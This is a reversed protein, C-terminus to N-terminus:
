QEQGQDTTTPVDLGVNKPRLSDLLAEVEEATHANAVNGEPTYYSEGREMTQGKRTVSEGIPISAWEKALEEHAEARTVNQEGKLWAQLKSRKSGALYEIAIRDQLEQNFVEDGTLGMSNVAGAMTLPIIQYAGVAFFERNDLESNSAVYQGQENTNDEVHKVLEDISVGSKALQANMIEKVTMKELPKSYTDSYFSDLVSFLKGQGRLRDTTGNNAAGYGGSEGKAIFSLLPNNSDSIEPRKSTRGSGLKVRTQMDLEGTVELGNEYQFTKVANTTSPGSVGDVDSKYHGTEKLLAQSQELISGLNIEKKTSPQVGSATDDITPEKEVEPKSIIPTEKTKIEPSTITEDLVPSEEVKPQVMSPAQTQIQTPPTIGERFSQYFQRDPDFPLQEATPGGKDITAARLAGMGQKINENLNTTFKKAVLLGSNLSVNGQDVAAITEVVQERQVDVVLDGGSLSVDSM